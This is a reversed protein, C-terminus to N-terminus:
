TIGGKLISLALYNEERATIEEFIKGHFPQGPSESRIPNTTPDDQDETWIEPRAPLAGLSSTVYIGNALEKIKQRREKLTDFIEEDSKTQM